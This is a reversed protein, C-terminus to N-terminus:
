RPIAHAPPSPITLAPCPCLPHCPCPLPLPSPLPTALPEPPEGRPRERASTVQPAAARAAEAGPHRSGDASMALLAKAVSVAGVPAAGPPAPPLTTVLRMLAQRATALRRRLETLLPLLQSIVHVVHATNDDTEAVALRSLRALTARLAVHASTECLELCLCGAPKGVAHRILPQAASGTHAAAAAASGGTIGAAAAKPTRWEAMSIALTYVRKILEKGSMTAFASAARETSSPPPPVSAGFGVAAEAAAHSAHASADARAPSSPAADSHPTYGLTYDEADDAAMADAWQEGRDAAAAVAAAHPHYPAAEWAFREWGEHWTPPGILAGCVRLPLLQSGRPEASAGSIGVLQPAQLQTGMPTPGPQYTPPAGGFTEAVAPSGGGGTGRWSGSGGARQESAAAERSAQQAPQGRARMSVQAGSVTPAASAASTMNVGAGSLPPALGRGSPRRERREGRYVDNAMSSELGVGPVHPATGLPVFAPTALRGAPPSAPPPTAVVAARVLPSHIASEAPLADTLPPPEVASEAGEAPSQGSAYPPLGSVSEDVASAAEAASAPGVEVVDVRPARPQQQPQQPPPQRRAAEVPGDKLGVTSLSRRGGPTYGQLIEDAQLPAPPLPMLSQSQSQSQPTRAQLTRTPMSILPRQSPTPPRGKVLTFGPPPAMPNYKTPQPLGGVGYRKPTRPRSSTLHQEAQQGDLGAGGDDGEALISAAGALTEDIAEPIAEPITEPGAEYVEDDYSYAAAAEPIASAEDLEAAARPPQSSGQRYAAILSGAGDHMAGDHLRPQSALGYYAGDIRAQAEANLRMERNLAPASASGQMIFQASRSRLGSKSGAMRGTIKDHGSAAIRLLPDAEM